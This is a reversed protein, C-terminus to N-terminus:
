ENLFILDPYNSLAKPYEIVLCNEIVEVIETNISTSFALNIGQVQLDGGEAVEGHWM